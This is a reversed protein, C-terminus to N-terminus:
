LCVSLRDWNYCTQRRLLYYITGKSHWGLRQMKAFTIFNVSSLHIELLSHVLGSKPSM